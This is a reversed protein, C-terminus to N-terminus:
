VGERGSVTKPHDRIRGAGEIKDVKAKAKRNLSYL